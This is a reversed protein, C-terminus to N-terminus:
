FPWSAKPAVTEGVKNEEGGLDVVELPGYFWVETDDLEWDANELGEYWDEDWAAEVEQKMEDTVNDSYTWWCAVGDDQEQDEIDFQGLYLGGDNEIDLDKCNDAVIVHGWRYTTEMEARFVEGDVEKLFTETVVVSKKDKTSIKWSM